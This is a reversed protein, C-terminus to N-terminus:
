ISAGCNHCFSEGTPNQHQCFPCIKLPSTTDKPEAAKVQGKHALWTFINLALQAHQRNNNNQPEGIGQAFIIPSGTAFVRGENLQSTAMVIAKPPTTDPDSYALPKAEATVELCCGSYYFNQIKRFIPCPEFHSILPIKFGPRNSTTTPRKPFYSNKGGKLYTSIFFIGFKRSINNIYEYFKSLGSGIGSFTSPIDAIKFPIETSIFPLTPLSYQGILLLSGGLQVFKEIAIIENAGLPRTPNYVVLIDYNRLFQLSLRRRESYQVSYGFRLLNNKLSEFSDLKAGMRKLLSTVVTKKARVPEGAGEAFLVKKGMNLNVFYLKLFRTELSNNRVM